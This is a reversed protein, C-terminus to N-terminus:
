REYDVTTVCGIRRRRPALSADADADIRVEGSLVAAGFAFAGIKHVFYVFVPPPCVKEDHM